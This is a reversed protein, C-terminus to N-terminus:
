GLNMSFFFFFVLICKIQLHMHTKKKGRAYNSGMVPKLPVCYDM